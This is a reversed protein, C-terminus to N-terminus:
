LEKLGTPAPDCRVRRLADPSTGSTIRDRPKDGGAPSRSQPARLGHRAARGSGDLSVGFGLPITDSGMSGSAEM